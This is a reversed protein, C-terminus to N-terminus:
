GYRECDSQKCAHKHQQSEDSILVAISHASVDFNRNFVVGVVSQYAM